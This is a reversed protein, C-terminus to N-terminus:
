FAEESLSRFGLKQMKRLAKWASAEDQAEDVDKM